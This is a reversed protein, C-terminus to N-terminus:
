VIFLMKLFIKAIYVFIEDVHINNKAVHVIYKMWKSNKTSSINQGHPHFINGYQLHFLTPFL